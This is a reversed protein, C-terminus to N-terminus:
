VKGRECGMIEVCMDYEVDWREGGCAGGMCTGEGAENRLRELDV